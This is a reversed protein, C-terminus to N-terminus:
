SGFSRVRYRPTSHDANQVLRVFPGVPLQPALELRRQRLVREGFGNWSFRVRLCRCSFAVCGVIGPTVHAHDVHFVGVGHFLGAAAGHEHAPHERACGEAPVLTRVPGHFIDDGQGLSLADMRTAGM